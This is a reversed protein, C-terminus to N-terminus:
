LNTDVDTGLRNRRVLDSINPARSYAIILRSMDFNDDADQFADKCSTTFLSQLERRTADQPHYPVHLFCTGDPLSVDNTLPKAEPISSRDVRHAAKLFLKALNSSAHGRAELNQFLYTAFREFDHQYSNQWFYRHLTGYILGYLISPPQASSPPRYLYLNMPKQYTTTTIGHQNNLRLTFDLFTVSRGPETPEWELRAGPDGFSNMASM